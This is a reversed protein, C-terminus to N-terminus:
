VPRLAAVVPLRADLVPLEAQHSLLWRVPIREKGAAAFEPWYDAVPADLDFQGRQALLHACAATAPCGRRGRAV